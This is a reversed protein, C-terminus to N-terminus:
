SHSRSKSKRAKQAARKAVKRTQLLRKLRETSVVVEKDVYLNLLKKASGSLKASNPLPDNMAKAAQFYEYFLKFSRGIYANISAESGRHAKPISLGLDDLNHWRYGGEAYFWDLGSKLSTM